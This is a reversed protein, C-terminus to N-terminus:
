KLVKIKEWSAVQGPKLKFLPHPLPLQQLNFSTLKLAAQPDRQNLKTQLYQLEYYLQGTTLKILPKIETVLTIKNKQFQYNRAQAELLLQSLYYNIAALPQPHNQFRQLQPHKTYGKTQGALVKKALLGERWAAVLGKSDLYQPHLSWLRM